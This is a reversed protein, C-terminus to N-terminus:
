KAIKEFDIRYDTTKTHKSSNCSHCLPQINEICNLGSKTLPIVHDATLNIEPELKLCSLCTYNFEAKLADWQALTFGPGASKKLYVRQKALHSRKEPNARRYGRFYEALKEKNKERYEKKKANIKENNKSHYAKWLAAREAKHSERYLKWWEQNYAM